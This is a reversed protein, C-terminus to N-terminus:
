ATHLRVRTLLEARLWNFRDCRCEVLAPLKEVMLWAQAAGRNGRRYTPRRGARSSDKARKTLSYEMRGDTNRKWVYGPPICAFLAPHPGARFKVKNFLDLNVHAPAPDSAYNGWGRLDLIEALDEGCRGCHIIRQDVLGNRAELKVTM